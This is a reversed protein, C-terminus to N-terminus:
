LRSMLTRQVYRTRHINCLGYQQIALRHSKTGYGKNEHFTYHPYQPSIDTMLADRYVKAIISSAAISLSISDGHIIPKQDCIKELGQIKFGDVLLFIKNSLLKTQIKNVIEIAGRTTAHMIGYENIVDVPVSVIEYLFATKLITPALYERKIRTLKKSDNIGIEKLHTYFTKTRDIPFVVGAMVLPGAFAGRGVEDIGVVHYGQSWLAKECTFNPINKKM